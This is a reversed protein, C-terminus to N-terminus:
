NIPRSTVDFTAVAKNLTDSPYYGDEPTSVVRISDLFGHPTGIDTGCISAKISELINVADTGPAYCELTVPDVRDLFGETGPRATIHVLPFPGAPAGYQDTGLWWVFTVEAGLHTTGDILDGLCERVDPFVLGDIM